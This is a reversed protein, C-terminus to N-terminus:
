DNSDYFIKKYRHTVDVVYEYMRYDTNQFYTPTERCTYLNPFIRVPIDIVGTRVYRVRCSKGLGDLGSSSCRSGLLAFFSLMLVVTEQKGGETHGNM